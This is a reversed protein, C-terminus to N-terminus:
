EKNSKICHPLRDLNFKVMMDSKKKISEKFSESLYEEKYPCDGYLQKHRDVKMRNGGVLLM